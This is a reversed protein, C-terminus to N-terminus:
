QWMAPITFGQEAMDNLQKSCVQSRSPNPFTLLHQINQLLLLSRVPFITDTNVPLPKRIYWWMLVPVTSSLELTLISVHESRSTVHQCSYAVAAHSIQCIDPMSWITNQVHMPLIVQTFGSKIDYRVLSKRRVTIKYHLWPERMRICFVMPWRFDSGLSM